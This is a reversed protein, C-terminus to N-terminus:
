AFLAIEFYNLRMRYTFDLMRPGTNNFINFEHLGGIQIRKRLEDSLDPHASM